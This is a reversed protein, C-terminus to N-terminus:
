SDSNIFRTLVKKLEDITNVAYNSYGNKVEDVHRFGWGYTVGVFEIGTEKAGRADYFSDGVLISNKYDILTTNMCNKILNAKTLTDNLDMGLICDFYKFISFEDLIKIALDQRKLTAVATTVENNKLFELLDPMGTYVKALHIGCKEYENRYLSIAQRAEEESMDFFHMFNYLLSGGIINQFQEVSKKQKKFNEAVYNYCHIIGPSTDMLTGDLDFIVLKKM